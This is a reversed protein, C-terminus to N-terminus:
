LVGDERLIDQVVAELSSFVNKLMPEGRKRRRGEEVVPYARIGHSQCERMIHPNDDVMKSVENDLCWQAKGDKGCQSWTFSVSAWGRCVWWAWDWVEKSRAVGCYSLLHVEYGSNVLQQLWHTNKADYKDRIVLVGHWDIAIIKGQREELVPEEKKIKTAPPPPSSSSSYYGYSSSEGGGWDVEGEEEEVEKGKTLTTKKKRCGKGNEKDGEKEKGKKEGEKEKGKKEQTSSPGLDAKPCPKEQSGPAPEQTSEAKQCPKEEEKKKEEAKQCPKEGKKEEAKQWPEKKKGQSKLKMMAEDGEALRDRQAAQRIRDRSQTTTGSGSPRNAKNWGQTWDLSEDWWRGNYYPM